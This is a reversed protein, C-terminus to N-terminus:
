YGCFKSNIAFEYTRDKLIENSITRKALYAADHAFCAKALNNAYIHKLNWTEKFKQVQEHHKTFPSCASYYTFEPQILHLKSMFTDGTLFMKNVFIKNM